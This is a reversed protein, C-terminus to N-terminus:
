FLAVMKPKFLMLEAFPIMRHIQNIQYLNTAANIIHSINDEKSDLINDSHMTSNVEKSLVIRGNPNEVANDM